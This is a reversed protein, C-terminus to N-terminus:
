RGAVRAVGDSFGILYGDLWAQRLAALQLHMTEIDDAADSATAYEDARAELRQRALAPVDTIKM